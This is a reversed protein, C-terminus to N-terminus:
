QEGAEHLELVLAPLSHELIIHTAMEREAPSGDTDYHEVIQLLELAARYMENM